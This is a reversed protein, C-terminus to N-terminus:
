EEEYDLTSVDLQFRLIAGVGGFGKVFQSGEQSRDSVFELQAGYKAYNETFWETLAMSDVVTLKEAPNSSDQSPTETADKTYVIHEELMILPHSAPNGGANDVLRWRTMPLDEFAILTEVAGAELSKLTELYGYCTKGGEKSIDEFFKELIQKEHIFRVNGLVDSALEIAQNFGNFDGYSVDVIKLILPRLRQDFLDSKALDNKFEASGALILGAVNPKANTIFLTSMQEAVKRVYNHRKEERLRSFRLASQGGRGHKKPLDVSFKHIVDRTNGTLTGFLCGNGDMVVFGFRADDELLESLAETHFKNDCLYLSTNIPKFPEFDINLKRQKGEDTIVESDNAPFHM